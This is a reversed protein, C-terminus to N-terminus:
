CRLSCATSCFLFLSLSFLFLVYSNRLSIIVFLPLAMNKGSLSTPDQHIKLYFFLSRPLAVDSHGKDSQGDSVRGCGCGCCIAERSMWVLLLLSSERTCRLLRRPTAREQASHRLHTTAPYLMRGGADSVQGETRM